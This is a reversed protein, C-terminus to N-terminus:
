VHYVPEPPQRPHGPAQPQSLHIRTRQRRERRCARNEREFNGLVRQRVERSEIVLFDWPQMFGASPAHHAAELLRALVAAPVPDPVLQSRMDRREFIACYLGNREDDTFVNEASM